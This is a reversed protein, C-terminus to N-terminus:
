GLLWKLKVLFCKQHHTPKIVTRRYNSNGWFKVQGNPLHLVPYQIRRGEWSSGSSLHFENTELAPKCQTKLRNVAYRKYVESLTSHQTETAIELAQFVIRKENESNFYLFHLWVVYGIFLESSIFVVHYWKIEERQNARENLPTGTFKSIGTLM